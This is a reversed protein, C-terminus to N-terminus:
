YGIVQATAMVWPAFPLLCSFSSSCSCSSYSSSSSTFTFHRSCSKPLYDRLYRSGGSSSSSKLASLLFSPSVYLFSYLHFPWPACPSPVLAGASALLHLFASSSPLKAWKWGHLKEELKWCIKQDMKYKKLLWNWNSNRGNRQFSMQM